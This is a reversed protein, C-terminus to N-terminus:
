QVAMAPIVFHHNVHHSHQKPPALKNPTLHDELVGLKRGAERVYAIHERLSQAYAEAVTQDIGYDQYNVDM